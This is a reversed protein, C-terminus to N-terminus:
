AQDRRGQLYRILKKILFIMADRRGATFARVPGAAQRPDSSGTEPEAAWTRQPLLLRYLTAPVRDTDHDTCSRAPGTM